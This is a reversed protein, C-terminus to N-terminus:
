ATCLRSSCARQAFFIKELYVFKRHRIYVPRQDADDRSKVFLLAEIQDGFNRAFQQLFINASTTSPVPLGSYSFVIGPM